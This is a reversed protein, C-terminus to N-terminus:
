ASVHPASSFLLATRNLIKTASNSWLPTHWTKSSPCVYINTRKHSLYVDLQPISIHGILTCLYQRKPNFPMEMEPISMKGFFSM